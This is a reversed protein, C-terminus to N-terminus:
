RALMPDIPIAFSGIQDGVGGFGESFDDARGILNYGASAVTGFCDPGYNGYNGAIICNEITPVRQCPSGGHWDRCTFIGGGQSASNATFTCSDFKVAGAGTETSIAGGWSVASNSSFTSNFVAMN